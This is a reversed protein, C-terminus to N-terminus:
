GELYSHRERHFADAPFADFHSAPRRRRMSEALRERRLHMWTERDLPARLPDAACFDLYERWAMWEHHSAGLALELVIADDLLGFGPEHDPILDDAECLYALAGTLGARDAEPLAWGPQALLGVIDPVRDLRQRLWRPQSDRDLGSLLDLADAPRFDRDRLARVQAQWAAHFPALDQERLPLEVNLQM